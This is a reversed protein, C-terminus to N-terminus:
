RQAPVFQAFGDDGSRYGYRKESHPLIARRSSGDGLAVCCAPATIAKTALHARGGACRYNLVTARPIERCVGDLRSQNPIIFDEGPGVLGAFRAFFLVFSFIQEDSQNV